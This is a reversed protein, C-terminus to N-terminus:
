LRRVFLDQPSNRISKLFFLNFSSVHEFGLAQAIESIDWNNYALLRKAEQIITESIHESTTKGTNKKLVRNLHNTHIALQFAFENANRLKLTDVKSSIPFQRNLLELFLDTTRVGNLNRRIYLHPPEIKLAEHIIIQIYNRILDFKNEYSGKMEIIIQEFISGLFFMVASSPFLVHTGGVKFLPSNVLSDTKLRCAIFEETFFCCYGTEMGERREFSYPIMPNSFALVNDNVIIQKDAYSLIGKSQYALTIKYFERRQHPLTIAASFEEIPYVCFDGNGPESMNHRRKFEILSESKEM